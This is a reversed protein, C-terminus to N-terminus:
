PAQLEFQRCGQHAEHRGLARNADVADTQRDVLDVATAEIDVDNGMGKHDGRKALKFDVVADVDFDVHDSTIQFPEHRFSFLLSGIGANFVISSIRSSRRRPLIATIMSSSSRSFSPSRMMAASQTRGCSTFKM